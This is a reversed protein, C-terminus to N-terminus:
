NADPMRFRLNIIGDTVSLAGVHYPFPHPCTIRIQGDNFITYELAVSQKFSSSSATVVGSPFIGTVSEPFDHTSSDTWLRGIIRAGGLRFFNYLDVSNFLRFSLTIEKYNGIQSGGLITVGGVVYGLYFLDRRTGQQGIKKANLDSLRAEIPIRTKGSPASAYTAYDAVEAYDASLTEEAEDVKIGYTEKKVVTDPGIKQYAFRTWGTSNFTLVTDSNRGRPIYSTKCIDIRGDKSAIPLATSGTGIYIAGKEQLITKTELSTRLIDARMGTKLCGNSDTLTVSM